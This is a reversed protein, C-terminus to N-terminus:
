PHNEALAFFTVLCGRKDGQIGLNDNKSPVSLAFLACNICYFIFIFEEEDGSQLLAGNQVKFTGLDGKHQTQNLMM